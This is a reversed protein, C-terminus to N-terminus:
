KPAGKEEREVLRWVANYWQDLGGPIGMPGYLVSWLARCAKVLEMHDEVCDNELSEFLDAKRRYNYALYAAGLFLVGFIVVLTWAM